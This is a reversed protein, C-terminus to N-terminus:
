FPRIELKKTLISHILFEYYCTIAFQPEAIYVMVTVEQTPVLAAGVTATQPANILLAPSHHKIATRKLETSRREIPEPIHVPIADVALLPLQEVLRMPGIFLRKNRNTSYISHCPAVTSWCIVCIVLKAM